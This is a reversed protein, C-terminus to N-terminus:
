SLRTSKSGITAAGFDSYKSFYSGPTLYSQRMRAAAVLLSSGRTRHKLWTPRTLQKTEMPMARAMSKSMM